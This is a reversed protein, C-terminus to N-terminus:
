ATGCCKKKAPQSCSSTESPSCSGKKEEDPSTKTACCSNSKVGCSSEKISDQAEKTFPDANSYLDSPQNCVPKSGAQIDFHKAFRSKQLVDAVNASVTTPTGVKFVTNIDFKFEEAREEVTGKYTVDFTDSSDNTPLKFLRYTASVFKHDGLISEIQKNEVTIYESAEVLYPGNFGVERSIDVLEKWTLAGAICEGWLVEHKRIHDPLESDAYVDSFYLEGGEKLVRYAEKLVARKDPVLNVVCNSVIIDYFNDKIGAEGLKEILGLRFDTNPKVFGFKEAHYDVYKNAVAVQEETMDVGTVHGTEGVLKSLLYCDRGAGSGLDLIHMGELAEPIILGCGYYRVVVDDHILKLVNKLRGSLKVSTCCANTQLDDTKTVRKGYYNKVSERIDGESEM